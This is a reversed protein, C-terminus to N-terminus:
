ESIWGVDSLSLTVLFFCLIKMLTCWRKPRCIDNECIFSPLFILNTLFSFNSFSIQHDSKKPQSFFIFLSLFSSFHKYNIKNIWFGLWAFCKSILIELFNNSTPLQKFNAIKVNEQKREMIKNRIKILQLLVLQGRETCFPFVICFDDWGPSIRLNKYLM